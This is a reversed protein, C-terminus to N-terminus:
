LFRRGYQHHYLLKYYKFYHVKNSLNRAYNQKNSRQLQQLLLQNQSDEVSCNNNNNVNFAHQQQANYDNDEEAHDYSPQPPPPPPYQHIPSWALPPYGFHPPPPPPPPVSFLPQGPIPFTTPLSPPQQPQYIPMVQPMLQFQPCEAM